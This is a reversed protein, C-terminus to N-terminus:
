FCYLGSLKLAKSNRLFKIANFLSSTRYRKDFSFETARKETTSNVGNLKYTAVM